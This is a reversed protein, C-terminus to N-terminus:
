NIEFSRGWVVLWVGVRSVRFQIEIAESEIDPDSAINLTFVQANSQPQELLSACQRVPVSIILGKPSISYAYEDPVVKHLWQGYDTEQASERHDFKEVQLPCGVEHSVNLSLYKEDYYTGFVTARKDAPWSQFEEWDWTPIVSDAYAIVTIGPADESNSNSLYLTFGDKRIVGEGSEMALEPLQIEYLTQVECGSICLAILFIYIVRTL